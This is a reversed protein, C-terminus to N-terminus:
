GSLFEDLAYQDGVHVWAESLKGEEVHVVIVSNWTHSRGDKRTGRGTILLVSHDDDALITHVEREVSGGLVEGMKRTFEQLGDLGRYDGALQSRGPYHLVYDEAYVDRLADLDGRDFAEWERRVLEVNPHAM